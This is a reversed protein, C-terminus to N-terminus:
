KHLLAAVVAFIEKSPAPTNERVTVSMFPHMSEAVTLRLEGPAGEIVTVAVSTEQKPFSPVAVTVAVPPVM